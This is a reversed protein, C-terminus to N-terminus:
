PASFRGGTGSMLCHWFDVDRGRGAPMKQKTTILLSRGGQTHDATCMADMNCMHETNLTTMARSAYRYSRRSFFLNYDGKHDIVHHVVNAAKTYNDALCASCLPHRKLQQERKKLWRATKYLYHYGGDKKPLNKGNDWKRKLM